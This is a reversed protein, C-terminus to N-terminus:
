PDHQERGHYVGTVKVSIGQFDPHATLFASAGPEDDDPKV